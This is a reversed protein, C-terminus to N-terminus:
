NELEELQRLFQDQVQLTQKIKDLMELTESDLLIIEIQYEGNKPFRWDYLNIDKIIQKNPNITEPFPTALPFKDYIIKKNQKIKIKVEVTLPIDGENKISVTIPLLGGMMQNINQIKVSAKKSVKHPPKTVTSSYSTERDPLKFISIHGSWLHFQCLLKNNKAKEPILFLIQGRVSKKPAISSVSAFTKELAIEDEIDEKYTYSQGDQLRCTLLNNVQENLENRISIDLIAFKKNEPAKAQYFPDEKEQINKVYKIDNVRIALEGNSAWEGIKFTDKIQVKEQQAIKTEKENLNSFSDINDSSTKLEPTIEVKAKFITCGGFSDIFIFIIIILALVKGITELTGEAKKRLM